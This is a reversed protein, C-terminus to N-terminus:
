VLSELLRVIAISALHSEMHGFSRLLKDSHVYRNMRVFYGISESLFLIQLTFYNAITVTLTSRM